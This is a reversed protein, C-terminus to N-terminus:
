ARGREIRALARDLRTDADGTDSSSLGEDAAELAARLLPDAVSAAAIRIRARVDSEDREGPLAMAAGVRADAPASPDDLVAEVQEHSISASRFHRKARLLMHLDARWAAITRGGRALAELPAAREASCKRMGERIRHLLADSQMKSQDLMPLALWGNNALYLVVGRSGHPEASAIDAYSVFRRRLRGVVRVGDTGVVVRPRGFKRGAIIGAAVSVPLTSLALDHMRFVAGAILTTLFIAFWTVFGTTFPGIPGRLSTESARWGLGLAGLLEGPDPLEIHVEDGSRLRLLVGDPPVEWGAALEEGPVVETGGITELRLASGDVAVAGSRMLLRHANAVMRQVVIFLFIGIIPSLPVGAM